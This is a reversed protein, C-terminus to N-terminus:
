RTMRAVVTGCVKSSRAASSGRSASARAQWPSLDFVPNAHTGDGGDNAAVVM